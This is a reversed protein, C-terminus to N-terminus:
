LLDKICEGCYYECVICEGEELMYIEVRHTADNSACIDCRPPVLIM